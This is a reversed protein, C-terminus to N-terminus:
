LATELSTKWTYTREIRFCFCTLVEADGDTM